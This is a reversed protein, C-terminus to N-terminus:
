RAQAVRLPAKHSRRVVADDAVAIGVEEALLGHVAVARLPDLRQEPAKVRDRHLVAPPDLEVEDRKGPELEGLDGPGELRVIRELPARELEEGAPVAVVPGGACRTGDEADEHPTELLLGVGLQAVVEVVEEAPAPALRRRGETQVLPRPRM